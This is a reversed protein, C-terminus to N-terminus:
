IRFHKKSGPIPKDKSKELINELHRSMKTRIYVGDMIGRRSPVLLQDYYCKNVKVDDDIEDM